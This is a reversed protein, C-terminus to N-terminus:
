SGPMATSLAPEFGIAPMATTSLKRAYRPVSRYALLDRRPILAPTSDSDSDGCFAASSVISPQEDGFCLGREILGAAQAAVGCASLM